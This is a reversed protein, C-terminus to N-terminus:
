EAEERLCDRRSLDMEGELRAREALAERLTDFAGLLRGAETCLEYVGGTPDFQIHLNM